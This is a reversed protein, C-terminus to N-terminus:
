ENTIIEVALTEAEGFRDVASDKSTVMESITMEVASVVKTAALVLVVVKTEAAAVVVLVVEVMAGDVKTEAVVEAAAVM